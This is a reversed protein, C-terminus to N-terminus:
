ATTTLSVKGSDDIARAWVNANNVDIRDRPGLVTGSKGTPTGAGGEVVAVAGEGVNQVRAAASAITTLETWDQDLSVDALTTGM